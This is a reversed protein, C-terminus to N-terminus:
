LALCGARHGAAVHHRHLFAVRVVDDDVAQDAGRVTEDLEAVDRVGHRRLRGAPDDDCRDVQLPEADALPQTSPRLLRGTRGFTASVATAVFCRGADLHRHLGNGVEAEAAREVVAHRRAAAARERGGRGAEGARVNAGEEDRGNTGPPVVTMRTLLGVVTVSEFLAVADREVNCNVTRVGSTRM